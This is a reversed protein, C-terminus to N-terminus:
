IAESTINDPPLDKSAVSEYIQSIAGQRAPTPDIPYPPGQSGGEEWEAEQVSWKFWLRSDGAGERGSPLDVPGGSATRKQGRAASAPKGGRAASAPKGDRTSTTTKRGRNSSTQNGGQQPGSAGSISAGTQASRCLPRGSPQDIPRDPVPQGQLCPCAGLQSLESLRWHYYGGLGVWGMYDGLGSLDRGTVKQFLRTIYPMFQLPTLEKIDM